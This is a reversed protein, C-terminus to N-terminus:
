LINKILETMKDALKRQTVPSPHYDTGYGDEERQLSLIEGSVRLDGTQSRYLEVAQLMQENLGAGQIGLTCLICAGPNNRRIMKLFDVYEPIFMAKREPNDKVYSLDNTGLLMVIVDPRFSDFDWPIDQLMRGDPLPYDYMGTKEYYPPVLRDTNKEDTETWGSLIGFGSYTVLQVDANLKEGTLLAWAKGADETATTFQQTLDGDVGYGNTISDGICELKLTKRAVPQMIGDTQVSRVGMISHKCESIKVLRVTVAEQKDGLPVAVTKTVADMCDRLVCQGNVYVAYRCRYKLLTSDTVAADGLLNLRCYTAGTLLFSIECGSMTLWISDETEVCRGLVKVQNLNM